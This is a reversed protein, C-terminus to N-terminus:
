EFSDSLEDWLDGLDEMESIAADDDSMEALLEFLRGRGTQTEATLYPAIEARRQTLLEQVEELRLRQKLTEPFPNAKYWHWHDAIWRERYEHFGLGWATILHRKGDAERSLTVFTFEGYNNADIEIKHITTAPDTLLAQFRTDSIRDWLKERETFGFPDPPQPQEKGM